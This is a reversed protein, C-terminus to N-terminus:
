AVAADRPLFNQEFVIVDARDIELEIRYIRLYDVRREPVHATWRPKDVRRRIPWACPDELRDVPPCRPFLDRFPNREFTAPVDADGNRWGIAITKISNNISFVAPHK